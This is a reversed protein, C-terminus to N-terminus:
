YYVYDYKYEEPEPRTWSWMDVQGDTQTYDGAKNRIHCLVENCVENDPARGVDPASTLFVADVIETM